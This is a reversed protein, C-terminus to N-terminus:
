RKLGEYKVGGGCDANVALLLMHMFSVTEYWGLLTRELGRRRRM